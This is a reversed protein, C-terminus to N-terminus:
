GFYYWECLILMVVYMVDMGFVGWFINFVGGIMVFVYGEVIMVGGYGMLLNM